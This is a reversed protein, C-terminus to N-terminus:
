NEKFIQCRLGCLGSSGNFSAGRRLQGPPQDAMPVGPGKLLRHMPGRSAPCPPSAQPLRDGGKLEMVPHSTASRVAFFNEPLRLDSCVCHSYCRVITLQNILYKCDVGNTVQMQVGGGDGGEWEVSNFDKDMREAM